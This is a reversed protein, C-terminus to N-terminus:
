SFCKMFRYNVNLKKGEEYKLIIKAHKQKSLRINCLGYEETDNKHVKKM